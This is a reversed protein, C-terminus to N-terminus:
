RDEIFLRLLGGKAVQLAEELEKTSDFTVKDGEEDVYRVLLTSQQFAEGVGLQPSFVQGMKGVLSEWTPHAQFRRMESRYQAKCQILNECTQM